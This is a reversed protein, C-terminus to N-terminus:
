HNSHNEYFQLLAPTILPTFYKQGNENFHDTNFYLKRIEEDTLGAFLKDPPIGMMAVETQMLDAWNRAETMVPSRRLRFIPMNLELLACHHKKALLAFQRAFYTQSVHLPTNSFLFNSATTPSYFCVDEPRAKTPPVYNTFLASSSAGSPEFTIHTVISGLTVEPNDAHLPAFHEPLQPSPDNPLNSVLAALLSRPMGIMAAYYYVAQYREPLGSLLGEDEGFRYWQPLLKHVDQAPGEVEDYIVLTKVRRHDLLDKTFFYLADMGRHSFSISRVVSPRGLKEDLKQQVYQADIGFGLHSSGIFAIDIDNTEGYIFKQMWPFPDWRISQSSYGENPRPLVGKSSLWPAALFFLILGAFAAAQKSSSFAPRM